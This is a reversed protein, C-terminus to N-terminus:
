PFNRDRKKRNNTQLKNKSRSLNNVIKYDREFKAAKTLDQTQGEKEFCESVVFDVISYQEKMPIFSLDTQKWSDDTRNYKIDFTPKYLCFPLIGRMDDTVIQEMRTILSFQEAGAENVTIANGDEDTFDMVVDTVDGENARAVGFDEGSSNFENVLDSYDQVSSKEEDTLYPIPYLKIKPKGWRAVDFGDMLSESIDGFDLINGGYMVAHTPREGAKCKKTRWQMDRNDMEFPRAVTLLHDDIRSHNIERWYISKILSVEFTKKSIISPVEFFGDVVEGNDIRPVLPLQREALVLDTSELIDNIAKKIYQFVEYEKFFAPNDWDDNLKLIILDYIEGLIM